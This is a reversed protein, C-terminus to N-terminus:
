KLMLPIRLYIKEIDFGHDIDEYSTPDFHLSINHGLNKIKEISLKNIKSISSYSNSTLMFFYNAKINHKEEIEAIVLADSVSFDIDHRLIVSPKNETKYSFYDSFCFNNKKLFYILKEYNDIGYM